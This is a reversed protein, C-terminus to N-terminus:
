LVVRRRQLRGGIILVLVSRIAFKKTLHDGFTQALLGVFPRWCLCQQLVLEEPFGFDTETANLGKATTLHPTHSKTLM